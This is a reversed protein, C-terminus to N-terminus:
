GRAAERLREVDRMPPQGFLRKYERSFQSADDYGVRHGASAADLNEGLLLRRAEQLRLQKQFQLPSMATVAKFHHHFGSVSMGLERALSDIRLPQDFDRRLREVAEAIRDTHGGLLALHRLRNGQEGMLLRFVIERTILPRLVRAEAPADLLRALRVVANLLDADLPSVDLARVDGQSRSSLHGAEVMVSGVLAPDLDLRLSLYPREASAEVVQGVVPLEVTALLYHAPDYRYRSDGLLVEKSGQAIVCFSPRSVGHLPETPASARNLRLGQLPEVAGDEPVARAIREALEERHAYVRHTEQM